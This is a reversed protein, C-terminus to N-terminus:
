QCLTISLANTLSTNNPPSFGPDRSWYQLWVNTGLVLAPDAGSAVYANFDLNFSGSCDNPPPNGGSSQVSTRKIPPQACLWGGQFPISAPGSTGYFVLGSKNNIVDSATVFFGSGASASPTGSSGIAPTCGLSNTKSSCYTIPVCRPADLPCANSLAAGSSGPIRVLVDGPGAASPLVLDIRAGGGTSAVGTVALPDGTANSGAQTFWVENSTPDFNAGLITITFQGSISSIHPKTATKVGYIFQVGAIDDAEISRAGCGAGSISPSMTAGAVNSHGLGLAHGYEHTIVGQIDLAAGTPCGPGDDWTWEGCLQIRWGNPGLSTSSIIGGGCGSHIESIVNGTTSGISTANGQWTVDFNAGGSGVEGPQSPDGSGDGHLESGWEAVAKWCAPEVGTYGPWNADPTTNDNAEADTFNDFVRVDRQDLGLSFGIVSYADTPALVLGAAALVLVVPGARLARRIGM